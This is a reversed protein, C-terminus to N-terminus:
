RQPTTFGITDNWTQPYPTTKFNIYGMAYRGLLYDGLKLWETNWAVANMYGYNDVLAVAEKTKGQRYLQGALEQVQPTVKYLMDMKPARLNRIDKIAENYHLEAMQQVYTNVWWGSDRRFGEFRSGITYFDPLKTMAAWLPTLYTTDPAGYGYWSIGKIPDPLWAKTQGIHLYCTRHMNISREWTASRETKSSNAYRLPDGWPGAAAGKTLDYPTGEYYDAKIKWIDDITLAKEPVVWLPYRLESPGYNNAKMYNPAVLDLARWERRTAYLSDNPSYIEALKWQNLPLDKSVWGQEVATKFLNKSYMVNATDNPDVEMIRLRNATVSFANDPIRVAVWLDAGYYEALWVDKGDGIFMSEPGGGVNSWGYTEVLEGMVKVAERASASRELAIDQAYWCDIIGENDSFYKAVKKGYETSTDIGGTSESIAVGKENMFSYRSHFYRYTHAVQPMQGVVMANGNRNKTYDVSKPFNSFDIYDHSDLVIDRMSGEAWDAEPIIWLRFDASTSDDNHTIVTSGDAMAKNGAGVITCAYSITTALMVVVLMMLVLWSKRMSIGGRYHTNSLVRLPM